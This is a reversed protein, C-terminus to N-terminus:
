GEAVRIARMVEDRRLPPSIVADAGAAFAVYRSDSDGKDIAVIRLQASSRKLAALRPLGPWPPLVRDTVLLVRRKGAGLLEKARRGGDAIEVRMGDSLLWHALTTQYREDLCLLVIKTEQEAERGSQPLTRVENRRDQDGVSRAMMIRHPVM